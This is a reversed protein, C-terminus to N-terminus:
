EVCWCVCVPKFLFVEAILHLSFCVPMSSADSCLLGSRHHRHTFTNGQHRVNPLPIKGNLVGSRSSLTNKEASQVISLLFARRIIKKRSGNKIKRHEPRNSPTEKHNKHHLRNKYAGQLSNKSGPVIRRARPANKGTGLCTEKGADSSKKNQPDKVCNKRGCPSM